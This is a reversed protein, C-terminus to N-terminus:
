AWAVKKLMLALEIVLLHTPSLSFNTFVKNEIALNLCGLTMNMSSISESRQELFSPSCYLVLLTFVYNKTSSSPALVFLSSLTKIMPAVLKGWYSSSATLLLNTLLSYIGKGFKSPLLCSITVKVSLAEKSNLSSSFSLNDYSVFPYEPASMYLKHESAEMIGRRSRM